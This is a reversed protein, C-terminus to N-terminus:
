QHRCPPNNSDKSITPLSFRGLTKIFSIEISEYPADLVPHPSGDLEALRYLKRFIAM